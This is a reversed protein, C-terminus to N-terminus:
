GCCWNRQLAASTFLRFDGGRLCIRDPFRPRQSCGYQQHLCASIRATQCRLTSRNSVDDALAGSGLPLVNIRKLGDTFRERDRDFMDVYALLHHAFLVPQARQLHTYGPMMVDVYRKAARALADRLQELAEVTLGVEERLYLRMDLAVQDNRSRATHAQGGADGIKIPSRREINM